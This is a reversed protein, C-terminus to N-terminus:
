DRLYPWATFCVASIASALYLDGTGIELLMSAIVGLLGGAAVVWRKRRIRDAQVLEVARARL